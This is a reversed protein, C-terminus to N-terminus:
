TPDTTTTPMFSGLMDSSGGTTGTTETTTGPMFDSMMDGGGSGPM